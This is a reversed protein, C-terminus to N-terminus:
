MSNFPEVYGTMEVYGVGEVAKGEFTGSSSPNYGGQRDRLLFIMLETNNKLQVSFWDSGTLDGELPATGFEHDMWATGRVPIREGGVTVTGSTQLRTFSHPLRFHDGCAGLLFHGQPSYM